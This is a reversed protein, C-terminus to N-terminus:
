FPLEIEQDKLELYHQYSTKESALSCFMSNDTCWQVTDVGSNTSYTHVQIEMWRGCCDCRGFIPISPPPLGEKPVPKLHNDIQAENVDLM